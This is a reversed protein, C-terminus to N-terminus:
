EGAATISSIGELKAALAEEVGPLIYEVVASHGATNFHTDFHGYLRQGEDAKERLRNIPDILPLSKEAMALAFCVNPQDLDVSDLPLGFNKVHRHFEDEHVQYSAPLLVFLVPVGLNLYNDHILECMRASIEWRPSNRERKWFIDPFFAISIGLKATIFELRQNLFLYLHSWSEMFVNVPQLLSYKIEKLTFNEPLRIRDVGIQAPPPSTTDIETLFDNGMYIFILGLDYCKRALARRSELYYQRPSWGGVGANDASVRIEYKEELRQRLIRPITEENNVALAALFSDGITIISIDAESPQPIRSIRFGHEDTIFRTSHGEGTFVTIDANEIQRWGTLTDPRWIEEGKIKVLGQPAFIRIIIEGLFYALCISAILLAFNKM